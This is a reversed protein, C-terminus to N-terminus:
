GQGRVPHVRARLAIKARLALSTARATGRSRPGARAPARRPARAGGGQAPVSRKRCPPGDRRSDRSRRSLPTSAAAINTRRTKMAAHLVMNCCDDRDGFVLTANLTQLPPRAALLPRRGTPEHVNLQQSGFRYYVRGREDEVIEADLVDRYFRDARTRDSVAIVCHDLVIEM